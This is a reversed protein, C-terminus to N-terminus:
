SRAPLDLLRTLVNAFHIKFTDNLVSLVPVDHDVRTLFPNPDCKSLCKIESSASLHRNVTKFIKLIESKDFDKLDRLIEARSFKLLYSCSLHEFSKSLRIMLAKLHSAFSCM